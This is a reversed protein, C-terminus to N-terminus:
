FESVHAQEGRFLKREFDKPFYLYGHVVQKAILTKAEEMSTCYYAAKTDPSADFARIFARSTHSHSQDIIAM